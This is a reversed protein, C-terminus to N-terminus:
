LGRSEVGSSGLVGGEGGRGGAVRGKRGWRIVAEAYTMEKLLASNIVGGHRGVLAAQEERLRRMVEPHDQLLAMMNTLTISSTDHGAFSTIMLNDYVEADTM